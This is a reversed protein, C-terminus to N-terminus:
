LFWRMLPMRQEIIRVMLYFLCINPLIGMIIGMFVAQKIPLNFIGRSLGYNYLISILFLITFLFPIILIGGAIILLEGIIFLLTFILFRWSKILGKQRIILCGILLSFVSIILYIVVAGLIDIISPGPCCPISLNKPSKEALCRFPSLLTVFPLFLITANPLFKKTKTNKM